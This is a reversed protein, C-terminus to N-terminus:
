FPNLAESLVRGSLGDPVPKGDRGNPGRLRLLQLVTRGIDPNEAHGAVQAAGARLAPHGGAVVIPIARENPGGHNGALGAMRRSFPDVFHYGPKAVLILDGARPHGLRWDDPLLEPASPKEGAWPLRTMVSEVETASRALELIRGATELAAGDVASASAGLERLYIHLLIGDSVVAVRDGLGALLVDKGFFIVPYPNAEGPTLDAFGHDATVFVITRQWSGSERVRDVFRGIQRDSGAIAQRAEPSKPGSAHSVLDVEPLAIFLFDPNAEDLVRIAENMTREDTGFRKEIPFDGLAADSWHRDPPIQLPPAGAFLRELKAKGTIAATVITSRERKAVTFVTEVDLAEPSDLSEAHPAGARSWFFNGTIGHAAPYTGTLLSAHNTNTVSPMVSRGERWSTAHDSNALAWLNPMTEATLASAPLGDVLIVVVKPLEAAVAIAAHVLVVIAVLLLARCRRSFAM